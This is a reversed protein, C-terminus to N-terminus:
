WLRITKFVGFWCLCTLKAHLFQLSFFVGVNQKQDSSSVISIPVLCSKNQLHHAGSSCIQGVSSSFRAVESLV